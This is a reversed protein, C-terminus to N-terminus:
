EKLRQHYVSLKNLVSYTDVRGTKDTNETELDRLLAVLKRAGKGPENADLGKYIEYLLRFKRLYRIRKTLFANNIEEINCGKKLLSFQEQALKEKEQSFIDKRSYIKQLQDYVQNFLDSEELQEQLQYEIFQILYQWPKGLDSNYFELAIVYELTKEVSEELLQLDLNFESHGREHIVFRAIGTYDQELFDLAVQSQTTYIPSKDVDYKDPREEYKTALQDIEEKSGSTYVIQKLSNGETISLGWEDLPQDLFKCFANGHTFNYEERLFEDLAKIEKIKDKQTWNLDHPSLKTIDEASYPRDCIVVGSSPKEYSSECSSGCGPTGNLLMIGGLLMNRLHGM